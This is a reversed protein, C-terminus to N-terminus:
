HTQTKTDTNQFRSPSILSSQLGLFKVIESSIQWPWTHTHDTMYQHICGRVCTNTNTTTAATALHAGSIAYEAGNGIENVEVDLVIKGNHWCVAGERKARGYDYWVLVLRLVVLETAAAFKWDHFEDNQGIGFFIKSLKQVYSWLKKFFLQTSPTTHMATRGYHHCIRHLLIGNSTQPGEDSNERLVVCM